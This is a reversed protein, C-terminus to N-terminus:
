EDALLMREDKQTIVLTQLFSNGLLPQSPKSGKIIVAAVELRAIGGVRVSALRTLYAKEVGSATELKVTRKRSYKIGLNKATVSSLTVFTAGTDVLFEVPEGNVAGPTAFTGYADRKLSIESPLREGRRRGKVLRYVGDDVQVVAEGRTASILRVRDKLVEGPRLRYSRRDVSLKAQEAHLGLYRIELAKEAALAADAALAALVGLWLPLGFRRVVVSLM